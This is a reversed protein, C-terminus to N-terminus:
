VLNFKENLVRVANTEIISKGHKKLVEEDIKVSTGYEQGLSYIAEMRRTYVTNITLVLFYADRCHYLTGGSFDKRIVSKSFGLLHELDVFKFVFQKNYGEKAPTRSRNNIGGMFSPNIGVTHTPNINSADVVGAVGFAEISSSHSNEESEYEDEDLPSREEEDFDEVYQPEVEVQVSGDEQIFVAVGLMQYAPIGIGRFAKDLLSSVQEYFDYVEDPAPYRDIGFVRAERPSFYFTFTGDERQIYRM